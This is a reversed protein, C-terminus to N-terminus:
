AREQERMVLSVKVPKSSHSCSLQFHDIGWKEDKVSTGASYIPWSEGPQLLKPLPDAKNNSPSEGFSGGKKVFHIREITTPQGGTNKFWVVEWEGEKVQPPYKEPFHSDFRDTSAELKPRKKQWKIVDWVFVITAVIAGWWAAYISLDNM